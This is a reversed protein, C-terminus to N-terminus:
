ACAAAAERQHHATSPAIGFGDPLPIGLLRCMIGILAYHHIGHVVAYMGERGLSSVLFPSADGIYSTKCRTQVPRDLKNGDISECRAVLYETRAIAHLRDTELRRDRPRADYDIRSADGELLPEFHEICHRHHGGISADFAEPVRATYDEDSMAELLCIGQKLAEIMSDRIHSCPQDMMLTNENTPSEGFRM